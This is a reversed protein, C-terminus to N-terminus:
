RHWCCRFLRPHPPHVTGRGVGQAHDVRGVRVLVGREAPRVGGGLEALGRVSKRSTKTRVDDAWADIHMALQAPLPNGLPDHPERVDTLGVRYLATALRLEYLVNRAYEMVWAPLDGFGVGAVGAGGPDGVGGVAAASWRGAWRLFLCGGGAVRGWEPDPVFGAARRVSDTQVCRWVGVGSM